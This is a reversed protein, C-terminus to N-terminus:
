LWCVDKRASCGAKYTIDRTKNPSGTEKRTIGCVEFQVSDGTKDSSDSIKGREGFWRPDRLMLTSITICDPGLCSHRSVTLKFGKRQRPGELPVKCRRHRHRSVSSFDHSTEKPSVVLFCCTSWVPILLLSECFKQHFRFYKLCIVRDDYCWWKDDNSDSVFVQDWM